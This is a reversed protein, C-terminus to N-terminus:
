AKKILKPHLVIDTVPILEAGIKKLAAVGDEGFLFQFMQYPTRDNMEERGYSNIHNMMLSIDDQNFNDMSTGKPIVYRILRHNSELSGKQDSRQPDCYFVRSVGEGEGDFEISRPDTFESGRDGLLVPFLKSYLEHGLAERLRWFAASVSAATCDDLIFALMFHARVFHLTLLCKGGIRGHCTDMEVTHEKPNGEIYALYDSYGREIHCSRDVKLSEHRSKRPRFRVKRRLDINRADFLSADVYKYLTKESWMIKDKANVAIHHISHGNKILPSIYSNLRAIEQEDACIGSRSEGLVHLYEGQASRASYYAKEMTCKHRTKCGNCVGPPKDRNECVDKEYLGCLKICMNITCRKCPKGRCSRDCLRVESCEFRYVCDNFKNGIGGTKRFIRRSRVEKAITTPDRGLELGIRRLSKGQDLGEQIAGREEETLHKHKAM